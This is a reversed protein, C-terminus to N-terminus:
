KYTRTDGKEYLVLVVIATLLGCYEIYREISNYLYNLIALPQQKRVPKNMIVANVQHILMLFTLTNMADLMHLLLFEFRSLTATIYLRLLNAM